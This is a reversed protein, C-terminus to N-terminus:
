HNIDKAVLNLYGGHLLLTLLDKKHLGLSLLKLKRTCFLHHGHVWKLENGKKPLTLCGVFRSANKLHNGFVFLLWFLLHHSMMGDRAAMFQAVLLMTAVFIAVIMSTVLVIVVGSLRVITMLAISAVITRTSIILVRTVALGILLLIIALAIVELFVTVLGRM